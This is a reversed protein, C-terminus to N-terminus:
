RFKGVYCAPYLHTYSVAVLYTPILGGNFMMTFTFFVMLWNRAYMEKRSLPYAAM